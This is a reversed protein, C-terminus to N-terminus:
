RRLSTNGLDILHAPSGAVRCAVPAAAAAPAAMRPNGKMLTAQSSTEADLLTTTTDTYTVFPLPSVVQEIKLLGDDVDITVFTAQLLM